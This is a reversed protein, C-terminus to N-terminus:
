SMGSRRRLVWEGALLGVILALFLYRHWLKLERETTETVSEFSAASALHEPLADADTVTRFTGGSRAAIQRLLATNARTAQYELTLAGVSFEGRDTGLPTGGDTAQAAFTYTGEPLTGVDLAYRGEGEPKLVYPYETSDPATIRLDVTADPVPTMTEDYVQGTFRVPEGGGFTTRVPRVRVQRDDARTAVWKVLNALLGPWLPAAPQLDAPVNAWRWTGVGLFAATRRGARQRLALLPRELPVGQVVPRALVQADPSATWQSENVRLPPLRRWLSSDAEAIDLTPHRRGTATPAFAAETTRDRVSEPRAPLLDSFAGRLAALDTQAGLLFLLPMDSDAVADAVRQTLDASAGPGPFGALVFVDYRELSDPAPGGYFSGDPRPIRWTVDLNKDRSLLRRVAAFDPSPADGLLLVQRRSDLVRVTVTQANNRTTAEGDLPSVRVTYQQLGATEPTVRLTTPVEATGNPLRLTTQDLRTGGRELRVTVQEGGFGDTQIRAEVPLTTGTYAIDNTTVQRVQVDRRRSTDGVAITHIPVPYRDAVYLPNRGTNYQGDSILAVGRLNDARLTSQMRRLATAIDTRPGRFRLSDLPSPGELARLGADFGFLRASGSALDQTLPAVADRMAQRLRSGTSDSASATGPSSADASAAVPVAPPGGTQLGSTVRLSETDDILVGLLPPRETANIQRLVPELLLFLVLALALFRLSGLLVRRGTSVPPTTRWYAAVALGAAVFLGLALWLPSYGLTLDM